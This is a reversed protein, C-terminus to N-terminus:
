DIYFLLIIIKIKLEVKVKIIMQTNLIFLNLIWWCIKVVFIIFQLIIDFLFKM